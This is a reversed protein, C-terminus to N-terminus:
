EAAAAALNPMPSRPTLCLPPQRIELRRAPFFDPLTPEPTAHLREAVELARSLDLPLGRPSLDGALRHQVTQLRSLTSLYAARWIPLYPRHDMPNESLLRRTHNAPLFTYMNVNPHRPLIASRAKEFRTYSMTRVDQDINYLLGRKRVFGPEKSVYPLFPDIVLLLDAQKSIADAFLSTRTVAGDTYYRGGIEASIFAPNLSLSAVVARSLPVWDLPPEGFLVPARRDQDTACVFLKRPLRRFDNSAGHESFIERLKEEFRDPRLPPGLWDPYTGFISQLALPARGRLVRGLGGAVEGLADRLRHMTDRVNLNAWRLMKLDFPTIRGGEHGAIALMLEDISYGNALISAVISGASIGFYLDLNNLGGTPLCDELCKLAGVEFYLGTIAGGALCLASRGPVRELMMRRMEAILRQAFAAEEGQRQRLVRGVNYSGLLAILQDVLDDDPGSVLALMRHTGYRDEVNKEGLEHFFTRVEDFRERLTGVSGDLVRLDLVLLNFYGRELLRLTESPSSSEAFRIQLDANTLTAPSEESDVEVGALKASIALLERLSAGTPAQLLVQKMHYTM